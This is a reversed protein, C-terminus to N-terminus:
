AAEQQALYGNAPLQLLRSVFTLYTVLQNPTQTWKRLPGWESHRRV